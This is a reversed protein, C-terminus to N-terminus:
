EYSTHFTEVVLFTKPLDSLSSKTSFFSLHKDKAFGGRPFLAYQFLYWHTKILLSQQEIKVHIGDFPVPIMFFFEIPYARFCFLKGWFGLWTHSWWKFLIGLHCRILKPKILFDKTASNFHFYNPLIISTFCNNDCLVITLFAKTQSWLIACSFSESYITMYLQYRM